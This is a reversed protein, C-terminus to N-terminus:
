VCVCACVRARQDFKEFKRGKTELSDITTPVVVGRDRRRRRRDLKWVVSKIQLIMVIVIIVVISILARNLMASRSPFPLVARSWLLCGINARDVLRARQKIVRSENMDVTNDNVDKGNLGNCLVCIQIPSISRYRDNIIVRVKSEIKNVYLKPVDTVTRNGFVECRIVRCELSTWYDIM